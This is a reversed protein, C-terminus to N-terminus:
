NNPPVYLNCSGVNIGGVQFGVITVGETVHFTLRLKDNGATPLHPLRSVDIGERPDLRIETGERGEHIYGMCSYVNGKNDILMPRANEDAMKLAGSYINVRVGRDVRIQVVRTEKPEHLGEIRLNRAVHMQNGTRFIAFGDTLYRDVENITGPLMNTSTNVPRINNSVQIDAPRIRGSGTMDPPVADTAAGTLIEDCADPSPQGTIDFRTGKIQVFNPRFGDRWPFSILVDASEQAPVSTIYHSIDDFGFTQPGDDKTEQRWHAPTAVLPRSMGDATSVLRIQAASITLQEGFDRAGRDFRVKVICRTPCLWWERIAADSPRLTMAGRGKRFSDRILSGSQQALNPNYHRMPRSTSLSGVSLWGYFEATIEHFPVWLRNAEVVRGSANRSWGVFGVITLQSQIFGMGIILIGVSLVGSVAGLPLGFAYNTWPPLDVNAPVLKNTALRLIFLILAFMVVLSMGWAYSDFWGGRLLLGVTLPEWFAFALAGATIVCLLHIVASFLGQSAWWYAILAVLLIAVINFVAIM